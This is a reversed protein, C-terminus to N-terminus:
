SSMEVSRARRSVSQQSTTNSTMSAAVEGAPENVLLNMRMM